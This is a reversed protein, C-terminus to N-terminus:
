LGFWRPHEGLKLNDLILHLYTRTVIIATFLSVIVGLALNIAFGKVMSAGFTNGFIYLIICTILTSSNSDRISPWARSWGLDIAQSLTRGARLEEKLREFILVNADVAMGISLIFGAIGPLSLTVPIMKFLMFSILAYTILALDAVIGPLRYYFAMFLIVVALGIAGATLSKRVSEEGLTAGVTRSEVVKVPVPLSGYRLQVALSNAEDATFSGTISGEGATIPTSISPSSIVKKDLVIALIKGVNNTTYDAFIKTFDSKLTFSIQYTGPKTGVQVAVTNLAAGTMVTHYITAPAPATATGAAATSPTATAAAGTPTPQAASTQGFDTQVITGAALPTTGADVFELLATQQLAAVVEEPNNIGPFEAVIRCNGATQMTIESVGLANARSELIQRTVDLEKPDVSNCNAVDAQLLTQLGGRLDLGLRVDTNRNVLM